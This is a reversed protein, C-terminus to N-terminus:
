KTFEELCQNFINVGLNYEEILDKQEKVLLNYQFVLNNYEEIKKLYEPTRKPRMSNIESKLFILKKQLELIEKEKQDIKEKLSFNPQPCLSLPTAFHQVAMWVIKGEFFGKQVAVGIEQYKPNLINERHGPSEMWSAVLDKESSFNGMALNEGVILFEYNFDKALDAVRKGSPSYHSFYQYKFMDEIKKQAMLNLISNEKLPLLGNKERQLNTEKIIEEQSLIVEPKEKEIKKLPPPLFIEKKQILENIQPIGKEIESIKWQFFNKILPELFIILLLITLIFVFILIKKM